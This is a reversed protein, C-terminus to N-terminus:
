FKTEKLRLGALGWNPTNFIIPKNSRGMKNLYGRLDRNKLYPIKERDLRRFINQVKAFSWSPGYSHEIHYIEMPSKLVLEKNGAFHALYCLLSDLHFSYIPMEPYGRVRLWSDRSLLTFDGCANTHLNIEGRLFYRYDIQGLLMKRLIKGLKRLLFVRRMIFPKIEGITLQGKRPPFYPFFDKIFHWVINWITTLAQWSKSRSLFNDKSIRAMVHKYFRYQWYWKFVRTKGRENVRLVHNRCYELQKNLSAAPIQSDADIRDLRYMYKTDLRRESLFSITENSFLIDMNTALIYDGQARRIGVNKALMQFIPLKKANDLKKHVSSPVRIIRITFYNRNPLITLARDLSLTGPPPNWEVLILECPLKFHEAQETLANVFLQMRNLMNGGHNDNRSTVVISLYPKSNLNRKSLYM